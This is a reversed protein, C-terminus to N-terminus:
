SGNDQETNKPMALVEIYFEYGGVIEEDVEDALRRVKVFEEGFDAPVKGLRNGGGRLMRGTKGEGDEGCDEVDEGGVIFDAVVDEEGDEADDASGGGEVGEAGLEFIDVGPGDGPFGVVFVM